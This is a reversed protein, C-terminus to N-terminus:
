QLDDFAGQISIIPASREQLSVLTGTSGAAAEAARRAQEESFGRAILPDYVEQMAENFLKIRARATEIEAKQLEHTDMIAAVKNTAWKREAELVVLDAEASRRKHEVPDLNRNLWDIVPGIVKKPDILTTLFGLDISGSRAQSLYLGEIANWPRVLEGLQELSRSRSPRESRSLAWIRFVNDVRYLIKSVDRTPVDEWIVIRLGTPERDL